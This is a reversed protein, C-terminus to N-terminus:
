SSPTTKLRWTRPAARKASRPRRGPARRRTRPGAVPHPSSAEEEVEEEEVRAVEGADDGRSEVDDDDETSRASEVESSEASEMESESAEEEEGSSSPVKVKRTRAKSTQPGADDRGVIGLANCEPM